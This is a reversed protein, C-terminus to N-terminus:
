IGTIKPKIDVSQRPVVSGTAVTKKRIDITQASETKFVVPKAQSKKYLYFFSGLIPICALLILLGMLIRKM